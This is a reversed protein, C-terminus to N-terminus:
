GIPAGGQSHASVRCSLWSRLEPRLLVGLHSLRLKVAPILLRTGRGVGARGGATRSVGGGAAAGWWRVGGDAAGLGAHQDEKSGM